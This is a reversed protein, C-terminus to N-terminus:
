RSRVHIVGEAQKQGLSRIKLEAQVRKNLADTVTQLTQSQKATLYIQMQGKRWNVRQIQISKDNLKPVLVREMKQILQAPGTQPGQRSTGSLRTKTQSRINVIRKVDPFMKKFLKQTQSQYLARQQQLQYTKMVTEAIVSGILLVLLILPWKWVTFVPNRKGAPRYGGQRLGLKLMAKSDQETLETVEILQRNPQHAQQMVFLQNLWDQTGTFGSFPSTRVWVKRQSAQTEDTESDSNEPMKEGLFYWAQHNKSPNGALNESNEEDESAPKEVTEAQDAQEVYPVQFCDPILQADELGFAKLEDIWQQMLHNEVVAVSTLGAEDGQSVRNLVAFHLEEIPQALTEELMYPLAQMWDSARKGPVTVETLLLQETPVWVWATSAANDVGELRGQLNITPFSMSKNM